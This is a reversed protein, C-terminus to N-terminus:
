ESEKEVKKHIKEMSAPYYYENDYLFNAVIYRGEKKIEEAKKKLYEKWNTPVNALVEIVEPNEPDDFPFRLIIWDGM